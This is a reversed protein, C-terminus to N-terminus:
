SMNTQTAEEALLARKSFPLPPQFEGVELVCICKRKISALGASCKQLYGDDWDQGQAQRPQGESWSDGVLRLCTPRPLRAKGENGPNGRMGMHGLAPPCITVNTRAWGNM